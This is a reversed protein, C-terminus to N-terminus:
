KLDEPLCIEYRRMMAKLKPYDGAFYLSECDYNRAGSVISNIVSEGYSEESFSHVLYKRNDSIWHKADGLSSQVGYGEGSVSKIWSCYFHDRGGGSAGFLAKLEKAPFIGKGLLATCTSKKPSLAADAVLYTLRDGDMSDVSKGRVASDLDLALTGVSFCMFILVSGCKVFRLNLM